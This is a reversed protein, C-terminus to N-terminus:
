LLRSGNPLFQTLELGYKGDATNPRVLVQLTITRTGINAAGNLVQACAQVTPTGEAAQYSTFQWGIQVTYRSELYQIQLCFEVFLLAVLVLVLNKCVSFTGM